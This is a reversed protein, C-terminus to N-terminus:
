CLDLTYCLDDIDLESHNCFGLYGSRYDNM